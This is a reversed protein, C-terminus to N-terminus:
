YIDHGETMYKSMSQHRSRLKEITKRNLHNPVIHQISVNVLTSGKNTIKMNIPHMKTIAFEFDCFCEVDWLLFLISIHYITGFM